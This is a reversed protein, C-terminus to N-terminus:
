GAAPDPGGKHERLRARMTAIIGDLKAQTVDLGSHQSEGVRVAIDVASRGSVFVRLRQIETSVRRIRTRNSLMSILNAADQVRIKTM